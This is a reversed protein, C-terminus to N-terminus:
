QLKSLPTAIVLPPPTSCRMPNHRMATPSRGEDEFHRGLGGWASAPGRGLGGRQQRLICRRKASRRQVAARGKSRPGKPTSSRTNPCGNALAHAQEHSAAPSLAHCHFVASPQPPGPPTPAEVTAPVLPVPPPPPAILENPPHGGWGECQRVCVSCQWLGQIEGPSFTAVKRSSSM